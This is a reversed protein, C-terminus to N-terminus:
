RGQDMFAKNWYGIRCWTARTGSGRHPGKHGPRRGFRYSEILQREAWVLIYAYIRLSGQWLARRSEFGYGGANFDTAYVVSMMKVIQNPRCILFGKRIYHIIMAEGWFYRSRFTIFHCFFNLTIGWVRYYDTCLHVTPCCQSPNSKDWQFAASATELLLLRIKFWQVLPTKATVPCSNVTPTAATSM